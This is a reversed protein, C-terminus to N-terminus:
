ILREGVCGAKNFVDAVGSLHNLIGVLPKDM